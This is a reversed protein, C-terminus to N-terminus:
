YDQACRAPPFVPLRWSLKGTRPLTGEMELASPAPIRVRGRHPGPLQAHSLIESTCLAPPGPPSSDKLPLGLCVWYRGDWSSPVCGTGEGGRRGTHAGRSSGAGSQGHPAVGAPLLATRWLM